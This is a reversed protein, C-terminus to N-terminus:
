DEGETLDSFSLSERRIERLKKIIPEFVKDYFLTAILVGLVDGLLYVWIWEWGSNANDGTNFLTSLLNFGLTIAFNMAFASSNPCLVISLYFFLVISLFGSIENEIFTTNPNTIQLIFFVMISTGMMESAIERIIVVLDTSQPQIPMVNFGNIYIAAVLATFVGIFQGAFYIPIMKFTYKNEKRFYNSLTVSPNINAGTLSGSM